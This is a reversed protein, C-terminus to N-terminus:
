SEIPDFDDSLIQIYEVRELSLNPMWNLVRKCASRIKNTWLEFVEDSHLALEHCALTVNTKTVDVPSKGKKVWYPTELVTDLTLPAVWRNLKPEYRFGRKLFTIQDIPRTNSLERTLDKTEDTYGMGIKAFLDPLTNQNLKEECEAPIAVIHDDGYTVMKLRRCQRDIDPGTLNLADCALYRFVLNVYISNVIATLYHGSPLSHTWAYLQDKALHVSHVLDHFLVDRIDNHKPEFGELDQALDNLVIRAGDLIQTLLSSDFNEFDGAVMATSNQQLHKVILDWEESYVNVGVCIGSRIRNRTLLGVIGQYYMKCAIYYDQSCASFVRTKWWKQKPKREDKLTDIFVHNSRTNSEALSVTEEV